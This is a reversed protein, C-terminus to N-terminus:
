KVPKWEYTIKEIREVQYLTLEEKDEIDYYYDTYYSGSRFRDICYFVKSDNSPSIIISSYEYKYDSVWPKEEVVKWDESEEGFYLYKTKENLPLIITKM